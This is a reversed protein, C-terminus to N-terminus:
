FKLLAPRKITNIVKNSKYIPYLIPTTDLIPKVTKFGNISFQILLDSPITYAYKSREADKFKTQKVIISDLVNKFISEHALYFQYSKYFQTKDIDYKEFIKQQMMINEKELDVADNRTLYDKTFADAKMQDWLINEMDNPQIINYPVKSDNCSFFIAIISIFFLIKM